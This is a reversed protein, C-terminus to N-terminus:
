VAPSTKAPLESIRPLCLLFDSSAEVDNPWNEFPLCDTHREVAYSISHDWTGRTLRCSSSRDFGAILDGVHLGAVRIM